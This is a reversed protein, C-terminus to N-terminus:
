NLDEAVSTFYGVPEGGVLQPKDKNHEIKIITKITGLFVMPPSSLQLINWKNKEIM